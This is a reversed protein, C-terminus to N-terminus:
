VGLLVYHLCVFIPSMSLLEIQRLPVVYISLFVYSVILDTMPASAIMAEPAAAADSLQYRPPM